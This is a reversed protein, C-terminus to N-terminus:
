AASAANAWDTACVGAGVKWNASRGGRGVKMGMKPPIGDGRSCQSQACRNIGKWEPSRTRMMPVVQVTVDGRVERGEDGDVECVAVASEEALILKLVQVSGWM